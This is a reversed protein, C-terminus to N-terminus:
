RGGQSRALRRDREGGACRADQRDSQQDVTREVPEHENEAGPDADASLAADIRKGAQVSGGLCEHSRHLSAKPKPRADAADSARKQAASQERM